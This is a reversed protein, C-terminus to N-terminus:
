RVGSDMPIPRPYFTEQVYALQHSGRCLIAQATVAEDGVGNLLSKSRRLSLSNRRVGGAQLCRGLATDTETLVRREAESVEDMLVVAYAYGVVGRPITMRVHRHQVPADERAQLLDFLSTGATLNALPEIAYVSKHTLTSHM